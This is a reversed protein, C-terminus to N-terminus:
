DCRGTDATCYLLRLLQRGARTRLSGMEASCGAIESHPKSRQRQSLKKRRGRRGMRTEGKSLVSRHLHETIVLHALFTLAALLPIDKKVPLMFNILVLM